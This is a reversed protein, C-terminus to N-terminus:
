AAGSVEGPQAQEQQGNTENTSAAKPPSAVVATLRRVAAKPSVVVGPGGVCGEHCAMVEVFRAPCDGEGARRLMKMTADDLGNIVLCDSEALNPCAQRLAGAVGGTTAFAWGEGSAAQALDVPECDAVDVGHAVLVAGIEEFTLVYDVLQDPAAEAMKALCPGIFVTCADPMLERAMAATYHLPSPTESVHEALAPLHKRVTEVWAPCCSSTLFGHGSEMAAQLEQAEHAATVDAGYAVPMTAAFGLEQLAGAVQQLSGPLQGAIAPAVLAVVPRPGKLARLVDSLQSCPFVAGFPCARVCQGCMICKDPNISHLGREDRAIAGVPCAEECPIPVRIVAQYPCVRQCLGCNVCKDPDISARGDVFSIAGKPCNTACPRALCGRCANTVQYSTQICGSCADCNVRLGPTPAASRQAARKVYEGLPTVEDDQAIDFGLMAILRARIIARDKHICCRSVGEDRPRMELPIRAVAQSPDEQAFAKALRIMIERRIRSANNECYM